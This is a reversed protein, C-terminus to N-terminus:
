ASRPDGLRAARLRLLRRRLEEPHRRDAATVHVVLYGLAELRRDRIADRARDRTGDHTPGDSEIVISCDRLLADVRIDPAVHVQWEIPVGLGDLLVELDREGPSEPRAPDLLGLRELRAVGPHGPVEAAVRALDSAGRRTRWRLRDTALILADDDALDVALELLNRVPTVAPLSGITAGHHAPAPDYRWDFPVPALRRGPAVLLTFGCAEVEYHECGLMALLLLGSVRAGGGCRLVAIVADQPRSRSSGTRRYVGSAVRELHGRRVMADVQPRRYGLAFLQRRSVVGLQAGLLSLTTTDFRM